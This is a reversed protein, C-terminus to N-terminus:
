QREDNRLKLRGELQDLQRTTAELTSDLFTPELGMETLRSQWNAPLFPAFGLCPYPRRFKGLARPRGISYYELNEAGPQTM